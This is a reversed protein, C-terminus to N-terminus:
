HDSKPDRSDSKDLQSTAVFNYSFSYYYLLSLFLKEAFKQKIQTPFGFHNKKNWFLNMLSFNLEDMIRYLKKLQSQFTLALLYYLLSIWSKQVVVKENLANSTWHEREVNANLM